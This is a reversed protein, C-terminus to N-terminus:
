TKNYRKGEKKTSKLKVLTKVKVPGGKNNLM